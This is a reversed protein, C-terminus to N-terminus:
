FLFFRNTSLKIYTSNDFHTRYCALWAGGPHMAPQNKTIKLPSTPYVSKPIRPYKKLQVIVGIYPYRISPTYFNLDRFGAKSLQVGTGSRAGFSARGNSDTYYIRGGETRIRVGEIPPGVVVGEQSPYWNSIKNLLGDLTDDGFYDMVGENEGGDRVSIVYNSLSIKPPIVVTGLIFKWQFKQIRNNYTDAVYVNGSSDVAVDEPYYFQGDGSGRSGWKTIFRGDPDFKQIRHNNSDAVYVNGSSDVAIGKPYYFQGDRSGTSGWKTIFRGDPDFKQIRNNYADVVYVNGSSDVAIGKPSNFEGDGSGRSGWKTIFRGDPDFKQIRHNDTDAVYVNGSSDVAIGKPYNFQGDRSGQSGWATIYYTRESSFKEIRHNNTNVAYANGSSDVAVDYPRNFYELERRGWGIIFGGDPDFKQIRNNYTDAVYVNGSSDVAIGEPTGFEGNGSGQSGWKTVLVYGYTDAEVLTSFVSCFLFALVFIALFIRNKM